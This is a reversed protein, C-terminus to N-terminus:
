RGRTYWTAWGLVLAFLSMAGVVGLVVQHEM